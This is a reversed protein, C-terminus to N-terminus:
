NSSFKKYTEPYKEKFEKMELYGLKKFQDQTINVDENGSGANVLPRSAMWEAEKADILAKQVQSQIKFLSDTDNEYQAIAAEHALDDPYGLLVFNKELKNVQNEKLLQQFQEEREAEKEAKEVSAKEVESLSEKYKKKYDSAEACAKDTARKLKAIEIMAQQLQEEVSLTKEEKKEKTTPQQVVKTEEVEVNTNEENGM